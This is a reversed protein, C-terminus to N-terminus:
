GCSVKKLVCIVAAFSDVKRRCLKLFYHTYKEKLTVLKFTVSTLEEGKLSLVFSVKTDGNKDDIRKKKKVPM